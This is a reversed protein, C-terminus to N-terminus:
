RDRHSRVIEIQRTIEEALLAHGGEQFHMFDYGSGTGQVDGMQGWLGGEVLKDLDVFAVEHEAALRQMELKFEVYEALDYPPTIDQRLPAIYTIVKIDAATATDYMAILAALNMAYRGAIKRRVSQSNIGFVRNRLYYLELFLSGRMQLRSAYIHSNRSCWDDLWKESTEQISLAPQQKEASDTSDSSGSVELLLQRGVKTRSLSAHTATTKLLSHLSPRIGTERFDDFVVPLILIDIPLLERFHEFVMYHEQLNANPISFTLVDLGKQNLAEFTRISAPRADIGPQNIAHLQSNGLWLAVPHKGREYWGRVFEPIESADTIHIPADEYDLVVRVSESGLAADEFQTEPQLSAFQLGIIACILGICVALIAWPNRPM